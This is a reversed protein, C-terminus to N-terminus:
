NGYKKERLEIMIAASVNAGASTSIGTFVVDMLEDVKAPITLERGVQNEFNDRIGETTFPADARDNCRLKLRNLSEKTSGTTTDAYSILAYHGKPVTFCACLTSGENAPIVIMPTNDGVQKIVVAGLNGGLTPTITGATWVRAIYVRTYKKVSQAGMNLIETQKIFDPGTGHLLITWAGDGGVVDQANLTVPTVYDAVAPLGYVSNAAIVVETGVIGTNRGFKSIRTIGRAEGMAVLEKHNAGQPARVSALSSKHNPDYAM